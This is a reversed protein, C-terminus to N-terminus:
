TPRGKFGDFWDPLGRLWIKLLLRRELELNPFAMILM